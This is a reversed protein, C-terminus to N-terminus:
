WWWRCFGWPRFVFHLLYSVKPGGKRLCVGAIELMPVVPQWSTSMAQMQLSEAKM